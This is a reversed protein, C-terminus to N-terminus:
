TANALPLFGYRALVAQAAKSRLRAVFARAAAAHRSKAVISVGRRTLDAVSVIQAPNSRPVVVVLANRTFAVPRGVLGERHLKAPLKTNAAAFVDAPAGQEIQTALSDSGGFSYFEHPAI